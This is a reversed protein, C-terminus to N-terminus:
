LYFSSPSLPSHLSASAAPVEASYYRLFTLSALQGFLDLFTLMALLQLRSSSWLVSFWLDVWMRVLFGLLVKVKGSSSNNNSISFHLFGKKPPSFFKLFQSPFVVHIIIHIYLLFTKSAFVFHIPFFSCIRSFSLLFLSVPFLALVGLLVYFTM